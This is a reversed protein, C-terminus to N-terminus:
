STRSDGWAVLAADSTRNRVHGPCAVAAGREREKWANWAIPGGSSGPRRVPQRAARRRPRAERSEPTRAASPDATAPWARASNPRPRVTTRSATCPRWAARTPRRAGMPDTDRARRRAPSASGTRPLRRKADANARATTPARTSGRLISRRGPAGRVPAAGRACRPPRRPSEPSRPPPRVPREGFRTRESSAPAVASGATTEAGATERGEVSRRISQDPTVPTRGRSGLGM